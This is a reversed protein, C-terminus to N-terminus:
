ESIPVQQGNAIRMPRLLLASAAVCFIFISIVHFNDIYAVMLAQRNIEGDIMQLIASGQEGFREATSVPDISPISFSTIHAAMDSHSTQTNRALMTVMASIGFSGAINRMLNLLSTGDPRYKAELTSFAAINMPMFICGLGLGQVFGTYIIPWRGMDLSWTAMQWMAIGAVFYGAAVLYRIDMKSMIRAGIMMTIFVGVGRPMLLLGTDFASYGFVSQYMTPLISAIAVNAIGLVFMFGFASVFNSNKLLARPFLPKDTTMLHVMFIWFASLAIILEVVIERSHLWDQHQGRDLLLQLSALGAALFFFGFTDLRRRLIPRSPLQWILIALTPIGIPVNIYFVWRWNLTDTLLGGLMPGTIPAIMVALGWISMAMPQKSPPNIDLMITQSMPGIFAACVGQMGRFVVMQALSTATGCLMSALLFGVVAAIFVLRSGIIDSLWGVIPTVLVGAIIYSTLVWSITDLTAGLSSQMHPLAVNAITVDLFQIISVLMVAVILLGRHKTELAPKDEIFSPKEAFAPNEPSSSAPTSVSM